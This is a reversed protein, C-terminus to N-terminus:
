RAGGTAAPGGGATPALERGLRRSLLEATEKLFAADDQRERHWDYLAGGILTEAEAWDRTRVLGPVREFDQAFLRAVHQGGFFPDPQDFRPDQQAPMFAPFLGFETFQKLQGEVTCLSYEVFKSAAEVSNSQAPVVLVSGGQNSNRLGGPRFAPLRFVGWEGSRAAGSRKIDSMNWCAVPYCAISDDAYSVNSEQSTSIPACIGSDLLRRLLALTERNAPSDLIIRGEADFVGGGNQQMFMQFPVGLGNPALPMMKTKGGSAKFIAQGARLLDDWTEISEPDIGHQKFVWRKYFVACPAIDWPVAVVKGEEICSLWFSPPFDKQYKAAWPTLDALRQTGTYKGAEREQLQMVDPAGRGSAMALLFRSQMATGSVKVDLDVTPNQREFEPALAGLSAGAINWGWAEVRATGPRAEASRDVRPLIQMLAVVVLVAALTLGTSLDITGHARRM